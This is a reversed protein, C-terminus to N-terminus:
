CLAIPSSHRDKLLRQTAPLWAADWKDRGTSLHHQQMLQMPMVISSSWACAKHLRCANCTCLSM